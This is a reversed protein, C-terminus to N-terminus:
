RSGGRGDIAPETACRQLIELIERSARDWSFRRANEFGAQRSRERLEHSQLLSLMAAAIDQQSQPSVLMAAPGAVEPMSTTNSTIVPTGAAMAEVIPLGFGEYLSPYLFVLAGATLVPLAEEAVFGLQRIRPGSLSPATQGFIHSRGPNGTVVLWIDDPVVPAIASWAEVIRGLNKRRDATAQALVYRSTPLGL